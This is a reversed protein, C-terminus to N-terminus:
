RPEDDDPKPAVPTGNSNFRHKTLLDERIHRRGITVILCVGAVWGFKVMVSGPEGMLGLSDILTYPLYILFLWAGLHRIVLFRGLADDRVWWRYRLPLRLGFLRYCLWRWLPPRERLRWAAGARLVDLVTRLDPRTRDPEALDLLTGLVEEGRAHMFRPPYATRLLLRCRDAYADSHSEAPLHERATM